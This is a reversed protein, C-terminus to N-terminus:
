RPWAVIAVEGRVLAQARHPPFASQREHPRRTSRDPIARSRASRTTRGSRPPRPANLPCPERLRPTCRKNEPNDFVPATTVASRACVPVARTRAHRPPVPSACRRRRPTWRGCSHRRTGATRPPNTPEDRRRSTTGRGTQNGREVAGLTRRSASQSFPVPTRAASIAPPIRAARSTLDRARADPVRRCRRGGVGAEVLLHWAEFAAPVALDASTGAFHLEGAKWARVLGDMVKGRMLASLVRMPFLFNKRCANWRTGDASLGGGSVVLHVHPQLGM